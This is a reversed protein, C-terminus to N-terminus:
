GNATNLWLVSGVMERVLLCADWLMPKGVRLVLLVLLKDPVPVLATAIGVLVLLKERVLSSWLLLCTSVKWSLLALMEAQRLLPLAFWKAVISSVEM